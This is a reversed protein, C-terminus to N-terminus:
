YLWLWLWLWGHMYPIVEEEESMERLKNLIGSWYQRDILLAFTTSKLVNKDEIMWNKQPCVGESSVSM